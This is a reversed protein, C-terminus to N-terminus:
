PTVTHGSVVARCFPRVAFDSHFINLSMAGSGDPNFPIPDSYAKLVTHSVWVFGGFAGPGTRVMPSLSFTYFSVSSSSTAKGVTLQLQPFSDTGSPTNCTINVNEIVYRKGLPTPVNIFGNQVGVDIATDGRELYPFRDPNEVDRMPTSYQAFASLPLLCAALAARRALCTYYSM